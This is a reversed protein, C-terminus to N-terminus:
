SAKKHWKKLLSIIGRGCVIGCFAGTTDLLVDTVQCSRGDSFLQHIEDSFAYLACSLLSIWMAKLFIYGYSKCLLFVLLGLVAYLCFHATKRVINHVFSELKEQQIKPLLRVCPIKEIIKYTFSSSLASSNEATQASFSFIITAWALTLIWLIGKLRV